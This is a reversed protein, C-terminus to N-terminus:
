ANAPHLWAHVWRMVETLCEDNVHGASAVIRQRSLTRPQETVAFTRVALGTDGALEIHNLWGRNTSTCPVVIAMTDSADVLSDSSILLCPRRGAQERGLTQGLDAWVIRGATLQGTV